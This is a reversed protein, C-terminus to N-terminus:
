GAALRLDRLQDNYSKVSVLGIQFKQDLEDVGKRLAVLPDHTDAYKDKLNQLGKAYDEDTFRKDNAKADNLKKLDETYHDASTRVDGLASAFEKAADRGKELMQNERSMPDLSKSVVNDIGFQGFGTEYASPQDGGFKGPAEAFSLVGPSGPANFRTSLGALDGQFRTSATVGLLKAMEDNLQKASITGNRFAGQLAELSLTWKSAGHELTDTINHILSDQFAFEPSLQRLKDTYQTLTIAGANYAAKADTLGRALDLTQKNAEAAIAGWTQNAASLGLTSDQVDRDARTISDRYDDMIKTVAGQGAGTGALADIKSNMQKILFDRVTTAGVFKQFASMSANAYSDLMKQAVGLQGVNENIARNYRNLADTAQNAMAVTAGITENYDKQAAEQKEAALMGERDGEFRTDIEGNAGRRVGGARMLREDITNMEYIITDKLHGLRQGATQDMKAFSADLTASGKSLGSVLMDGTIKGANALEILERRTKGFSGTWADGIAPFERMIGKLERGTITGSEMAYSLRAVLAGADDLSHGSLQVAEGVERTIETLQKSTFALDMTGDRVAATIGLTTSLSGHLQGAVDLEKGIMANVDGTAGVIRRASNEWQV